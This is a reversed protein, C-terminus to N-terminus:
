ADIDIGHEKLRVADELHVIEYDDSMFSYGGNWVDGLYAWTGDPWIAIDDRHLARAAATGTTTM